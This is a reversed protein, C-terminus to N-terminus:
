SYKSTITVLEPDWGLYHTWSEHPVVIPYQKRKESLEWVDPRYPEYSPRVNINNGRKNNCPSCAAVINDWSVKGGHSGPVVHDFTLKVNTTGCYQCQYNDRLWLAEKTLRPWRRPKAYSTRLIVSPVKMSISPSRVVWDEYEHLAIAKGKWVYEIAKSWKMAKLPVITEPTYDANLVLTHM